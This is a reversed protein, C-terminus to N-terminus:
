ERVLAVSCSREYGRLEALAERVRLVMSKRWFVRSMPLNAANRSNSTKPKEAVTKPAHNTHTPEGGGGGWM